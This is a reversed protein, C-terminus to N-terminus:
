FVPTRFWGQLPKTLGTSPEGKELERIVKGKAPKWAAIWTKMSALGQTQVAAVSPNATGERTM